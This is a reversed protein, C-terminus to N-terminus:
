VNRVEKKNDGEDATMYGVAELEPKAYSELGIVILVTLIGELIALPIQTLAFVSLFKVAAALVDGGEQPHAIALQVSTVVYTMLDGLFAALFVATRRNCKFRICLRYLGWAVFPGAIAMSFTNAGLTTVGGHALLFAQFILVILGLVSVAAPGFLIAGIGTGTMHSCSGTVSPIKLSSVVFIFAGAMAALPLRRRDEVIKKKLVFLGFLVVPLSVAGWAVCYAPQLYGEMIHMAHVRPSVCYALVFAYYVPLLFHWLRLRSRKHAYESTDYLSKEYVSKEYLSTDHASRIQRPRHRRM